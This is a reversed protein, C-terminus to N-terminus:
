DDDDEEAEIEDLLALVEDTLKELKEQMAELRQRKSEKKEQKAQQKEAEDANHEVGRVAYSIDNYITTVMKLKVETSPGDCYGHPLGSVFSKVADLLTEGSSIMPYFGNAEKIHFRRKGDYDRQITVILQFPIRVSLPSSTALVKIDAM